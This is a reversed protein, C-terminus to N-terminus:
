VHKKKTLLPKAPKPAVPPLASSDMWRVPINNSVALDLTAIAKGMKQGSEFIEHWRRLQSEPDALGFTVESRQETTALLVARSSVDVRQLDTLGAMPSEDFATILHLAAQVQPAVIHHGPQLEGPNIGDIVPLADPPQSLPTARERPDLPLMVYGDADLQYVALEVGGNAAPRPSDVQAVPVRETIRIHLTRPLMKVVSVSQVLPVMLLDRRVRELDLAFLNEEPKVGAWRRLQDTSIV